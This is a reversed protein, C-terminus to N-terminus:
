VLHIVSDKEETSSLLYIFNCSLCMNILFYHYMGGEVPSTEIAKNPLIKRREEKEFAWRRAAEEAHDTNWNEAIFLINAVSMVLVVAALFIRIAKVAM